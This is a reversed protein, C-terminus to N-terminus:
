AYATLTRAECLEINLGQTVAAAQRLSASRLPTHLCIARKPSGTDSSFASSPGLRWFRLVKLESVGPKVWIASRQQDGAAALLLVLAEYPGFGRAFANALSRWFRRRVAAGLLECGYPRGDVDAWASLHHGAPTCRTRARGNRRSPKSICAHVRQEPSLTRWIM